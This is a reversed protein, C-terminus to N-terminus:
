SALARKQKNTNINQAHKKKNCHLWYVTYMYWLKYKQYSSFQEQQIKSEPSFLPHKQWPYNELVIKPHTSFLTQFHIM